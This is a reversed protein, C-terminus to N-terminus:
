NHYLTSEITMHREQPCFGSCHYRFSAHMSLTVRDCYFDYSTLLNLWSDLINYAFGRRSELSCFLRIKQSGSCRPCYEFSLDLALTSFALFAPSLREFAKRALIVSVARRAKRIPLFNKTRANNSSSNWGFKLKLPLNLSLNKQLTLLNSPIANWWVLVVSFLLDSLHQHLHQILLFCDNYVYPDRSQMRQKIQLRSKINEHYNNIKFNFLTEVAINDRMLSLHLSIEMRLVALRFASL